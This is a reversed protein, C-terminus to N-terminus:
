VLVSSQKADKVRNRKKNCYVSNEFRSIIVFTVLSKIVIFTDVVISNM